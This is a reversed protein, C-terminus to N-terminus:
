LSGVKFVCNLFVLMAMAVAVLQTSAERRLLIRIHDDGACAHHCFKVM